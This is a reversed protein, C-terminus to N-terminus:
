RGPNKKRRMCLWSKKQLATNNCQPEMHSFDSYLNVNIEYINSHGSYQINSHYLLFLVGHYHIDLHYFYSWKVSPCMLGRTTSSKGRVDCAYANREKREKRTM